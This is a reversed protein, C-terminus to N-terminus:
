LNSVFSDIMEQWTKFKMGLKKQTEETKLGGLRPRPTRGEAKLFEQMLGKEIKVEEGKAKKLLYEVFEFPTATNGSVVHFIGSLKGKAIKFVPEILEDVLLPTFTQDTFIPFLKGEDYVKLYNKAFDLKDEYKDAYFPYAIRVIASNENKLTEEEAVAKTYGYWGVEQTIEYNVIEDESYPGPNDETGPFVFDTSIQIFFKGYKRSLESLNKVGEVNLKWCFGNKNGREKEAGDVNTVAAFNIVTDFNDKEMEFFTDLLSKNTIDVDIENPTKKRDNALYSAFKSGVLGSAGIILFKNDKNM